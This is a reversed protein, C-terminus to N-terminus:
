KFCCLFMHKFCSINETEETNKNKLKNKIIRPNDINYENKYYKQDTRIDNESVMLKAYEDKDSIYRLNDEYKNCRDYSKSRTLKEIQKYNQYKRSNRSNYLNTSNRLANNQLQMQIPSLQRSSNSDILKSKSSKHIDQSHFKISYQIQPVKGNFLHNNSAVNQPYILDIRREKEKEKEKRRKDIVYVWDYLGDDECEMNKLVNDMLGRLYNYDPTEEFALKRVYNMYISFEEPFGMCLESISTSRKKEGIKKYKQKNTPAKLGQWPLSGRLFYMFVHGLSELDDRRSQEHGLHTHISMYRATGSLSRKEKYPIHQLTTPDRYYKAMGFDVIYIQTAPHPNAKSHTQIIQKNDNVIHGVLFNDPKIDRYVLSNEHVTQIRSIMQKAVMAVTKVSFQRGCVDFLDELSPGLLDIVLINNSNETGFYYSNPIGVNGALIKYSHYEDKLQPSEAMRSEFKVAIPQNNLLDVGEFIVGFSGEGIKRILKYHAGVINTSKTSSLLSVSNYEKTLQSKKM